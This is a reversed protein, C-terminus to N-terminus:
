NPVQLQISGNKKKGVGKVGKEGRRHWKYVDSGVQNQVRKPASTINYKKKAGVELGMLKWYLGKCM